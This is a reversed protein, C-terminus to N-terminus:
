NPARPLCRNREVGAFLTCDFYIVEGNGNRGALFSFRLQGRAERNLPLADPIFAPDTWGYVQCYGDGPCLGRARAILADPTDAASLPLFHAGPDASQQGVSLRGSQRGGPGISVVERISKPPEASPDAEDASGADPDNAAFSRPAPENGAYRASLAAPTGWYGRWRLFLHTDVQAIKDLKSSWWPHVWDTHYHTANGVKAFVRGGLAEAARQRAATWSADSYRRALSGDCTFTFQCGTRRESGQFVVGCVTATFAPHRVRNLIVQMVARQGAEDGGAEAMAALALCHTARERSQPTGAFRFSPAPDLSAAAFPIASNKLRATDADVEKDAAEATVLDADTAPLSALPRAAALGTSDASASDQPQVNPFLLVLGALAILVIAGAAFALYNERWFSATPVPAAGSSVPGSDPM